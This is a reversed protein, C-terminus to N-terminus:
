PAIGLSQRYARRQADRGHKDTISQWDATAKALAEAPTQGELAALVAQDLAALYENRGPIRLADLWLPQRSAAELALAYERSVSEPVGPWRWSTGGDTQSDRFPTARASSALKLSQEGSALWALLRRAGDPEKTSRTASALLGTVGLLPVHRIAGDKNETWQQTAPDFQETSGPM